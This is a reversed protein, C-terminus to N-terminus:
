QPAARNMEFRGSDLRSAFTTSFHRPTVQGDYRYVGGFIAGIDKEGHLALVSGHRATDFTMDFNTAFILWNARFRARYHADDLRTFICRLRDGGPQGSRQRHKESTWQGDWAGSFPDAKQVRSGSQAAAAKWDRDFSACAGLALACVLTLFRIWFRHSM